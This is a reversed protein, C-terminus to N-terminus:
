VTKCNLISVNKNIFRDSKKSCNSYFHIALYTDTSEAEDNMKPVFCDVFLSTICRLDKEVLLM